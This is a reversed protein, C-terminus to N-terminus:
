PRWPKSPARLVRCPFSPRAPLCPKAFCNWFTPKPIRYPWPAWFPPARPCPVPSRSFAPSRGVQLTDAPGLRVQNVLRWGAALEPRDWVLRLPQRTLTWDLANGHLTFATAPAAYGETLDDAEWGLGVGRSFFRPLPVVAVIPGTVAAALTQLHERRFQPDGSGELWIRNAADRYVRTVFRTDGGM